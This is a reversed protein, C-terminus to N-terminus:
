RARSNRHGVSTLILKILRNSSLVFDNRSSDRALPCRVIILVELLTFDKLQWRVLGEDFLFFFPHLRPTKISVALLLGM